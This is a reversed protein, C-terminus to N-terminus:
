LDGCEYATLAMTQERGRIRGRYTVTVLPCLQSVVLLNWTFLVGPLTLAHPIMNDILKLHVQKFNNSFILLATLLLSHFPIKLALSSVLGGCIFVQYPFCGLQLRSVFYHKTHPLFGPLAQPFGNFIQEIQQLFATKRM